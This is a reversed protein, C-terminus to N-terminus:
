FLKYKYLITFREKIFNICFNLYFILDQIFNLTLNILLKGKNCRYFSLYLVIISYVVFFKFTEFM